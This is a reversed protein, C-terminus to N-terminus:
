KVAKCTVLLRIPRFFTMVMNIMENYISSMHDSAYTVGLPNEEARGHQSMDTLPLLHFIM